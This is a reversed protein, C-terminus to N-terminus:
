TKLLLKWYRGCYNRTHTLEDKDGLEVAINSKILKNIKIYPSPHYWPIEGLQQGNMKDGDTLYVMGPPPKSSLLVSCGLSLGKPDLVRSAQPLKPLLTLTFPLPNHPLPPLFGSRHPGDHRDYKRPFFFWCCFNCSCPTQTYGPRLRQKEPTKNFFVYM